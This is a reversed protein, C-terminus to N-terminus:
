AENGMEIVVYFVDDLISSEHKVLLLGGRM